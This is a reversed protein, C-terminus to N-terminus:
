KIAVFRFILKEEGKKVILFYIGSSKLGSIDIKGELVYGRSVTRGAVDYITYNLSDYEFTGSFSINDHVLLVVPNPYLLYNNEERIVSNTISAFRSVGSFDSSYVYWIDTGSVNGIVWNELNADEFSPAIDGRNIFVTTSYNKSEVMLRSALELTDRVIPNVLVDADVLLSNGSQLRMMENIFGGWFIDFNMGHAAFGREIAFGPTGGRKITEFINVLIEVAQTQNFLEVVWLSAGYYLDILDHRRSDRPAISPLPEFFGNELFADAVVAYNNIHPYIFQEKAVATVELLAHYDAFVDQSTFMRYGNQLVHFLEHAITIKHLEEDLATVPSNDLIMFASSQLVGYDNVFSIEGDAQVLGLLRQSSLDMLYMDISNNAGYYYQGAAYTQSLLSDGPPPLYGMAYFLALVSDAIELTRQAYQLLQAPYSVGSPNYWVVTHEGALYQKNEFYERGEPAMSVIFDERSLSSTGLSGVIDAYSYFPTAIYAFVIFFVLRCTGM